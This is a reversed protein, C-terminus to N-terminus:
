EYVLHAVTLINIIQIGNKGCKGSDWMEIQCKSHYVDPVDTIKQRTTAWVAGCRSVSSTVALQVLRPIYKCGGGM